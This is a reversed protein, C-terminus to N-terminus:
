NTPLGYLQLLQDTEADPRNLAIIYKRAGPADFKRVKPSLPNYPDSLQETYFNQNIQSKFDDLNFTNPTNTPTKTPWPTGTPVGPIGEPAKGLLEWNKYKREIEKDTVDRTVADGARTNDSNMNNISATTQRTSNELQKTDIGQNFAVDSRKDAYERESLPKLGAVQALALSPDDKPEVYVGYKDSLMQAYDLHEQRKRDADSQTLRDNNFQQQGLDSYTGALNLQNKLADQDMSYKDKYQNYAQSMFQPLLNSNVDALARQQIQNETTLAQQSNGIGRAGLRVTANNGATQASRQAAGLANQYLPDSNADYSFPTPPASLKQKVTDVLDRTNYNNYAQNLANENGYTYGDSNPTAGMFDKGKVMVRGNNYTIDNDNIGRGTLFDRTRMDAM